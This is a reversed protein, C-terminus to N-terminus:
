GLGGGGVKKKLDLLEANRRWYVQVITFFRMAEGSTSVITVTVHMTEKVLFRFQFM